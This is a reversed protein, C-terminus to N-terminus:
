LIRTLICFNDVITGTIVLLSMHKEQCIGFITTIQLGEISFHNQVFSLREFGDISKELICNIVGSTEVIVLVFM